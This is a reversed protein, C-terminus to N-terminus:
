LAITNFLESLCQSSPLESTVYDLVADCSYNACCRSSLSVYRYESFIQRGDIKLGNDGTAEKMKRAAEQQLVCIKTLM